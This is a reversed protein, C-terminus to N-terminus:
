GRQSERELVSFVFVNLHQHNNGGQLIKESFVFRCFTLAHTIWILICHSLSAANQLCWLLASCWLLGCLLVICNMLIGFSVCVVGAPPGIYQFLTLSYSTKCHIISRAQFRWSKNKFCFSKHAFLLLTFSCVVVPGSGLEKGRLSTWAGWTSFKIFCVRSLKSLGTTVLVNSLLRIRTGSKM